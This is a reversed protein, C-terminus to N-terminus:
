RCICLISCQIHVDNNSVIIHKTHVDNNSYITLTCQELNNFLSIPSLINKKNTRKFLNGMKNQLTFKLYNIAYCLLRHRWATFWIPGLVLM